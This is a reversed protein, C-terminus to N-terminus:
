QSLRIFVLRPDTGVTIRIPDREMGDGRGRFEGDGRGRHVSDSDYTLRWILSCESPGSVVGAVVNEVGEVTDGAVETEATDVEGVEERAASAEDVAAM